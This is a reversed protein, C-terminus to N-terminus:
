KPKIIKFKKKNTAEIKTEKNKEEKITNEIFYFKNVEHEVGNEEGLFNNNNLEEKYVM